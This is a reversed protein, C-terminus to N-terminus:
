RSISKENEKADKMKYGKYYEYPDIGRQVNQEARLLKLTKPIDNLITQATEKQFRLRSIYATCKDRKQKYEAIQEPDKANRLKNRWHERAKKMDVIDFERKAIYGRIEDPTKFKAEAMLIMQKTYRDVFREAAKMEPSIPKMKVALVYKPVTTEDRLLEYALKVAEATIDLLLVFLTLYIEVLNSNGFNTYYFKKRYEYNRGPPNAIVWERCYPNMREDYRRMVNQRDYEYNEDLRKYIAPRDYEEGLHYLRTARKANVSRITAYKHNPNFDVLYGQAKMASVFSSQDWSMSLAKDIAERMLNYKTAEGNKESIYIPRPSKKKPNQIVTLGERQCIEDSLRRMRYYERKCCDYKKGDWMGVANLILHNHFTGTNYHSAVLVQYKDGWMKRALEVGLRHCQEATVEGTKFSQYAHYAVNGGTKGFREQVNRMEEFATEAKCNIGTVAHFQEDASDTKEENTAYSIVQQLDSPKTKEPNNCYDIVRFLSDKVQWIKTVAM